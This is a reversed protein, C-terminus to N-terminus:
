MSGSLSSKRRSSLTTSSGSAVSGSSRTRGPRSTSSATISDSFYVRSPWSARVDSDPPVADSAAGHTSDEGEHQDEAAANQRSRLGPPRQGDVVEVVQAVDAIRLARRVALPDGVGDGASDFVGVLVIGVDPHDAPVAGLLDLDGRRRFALRPRAPARVPPEEGEHGRALARLVGCTQSSLRAPPSATLSVSTLAADLIVGPRGVALVEDEHHLSGSGRSGGLSSSSSFALFFVAGGMTM